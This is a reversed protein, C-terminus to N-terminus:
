AASSRADPAAEERASRQEPSPTVDGAVDGPAVAHRAANSSVERGAEPTAEQDAAGAWVRDLRPDAVAAALIRAAERRGDDLATLAALRARAGALLADAARAAAGRRARRTFLKAGLVSFAVAGIAGPGLWFLLLLPAGLIIQLAAGSSAEALRVLVPAWPEVLSPTLWPAAVPSLGILAGLAGGASASRRAHEAAGHRQDAADRLRWEADVREQTVADEIERLAAQLARRALNAVTIVASVPASLPPRPTELFLEPPAVEKVQGLADAALAGVVSQRAQEIMDIAAIADASLKGLAEDRAQSIRDFDADMRVADALSSDIDLAKSLRAAALEAEGAAAAAKAALYVAAAAEPALEAARDAHTRSRAPDGACYAAWGAALHAVALRRRAAPATELSVLPDDASAAEIRRAGTSLDKLAAQPDILSKEDTEPAGLRIMGRLIWASPELPGLGQPRELAATLSADAKGHAGQAFDRRAVDYLRAARPRLGQFAVLALGAFKKERTRAGGSKGGLSTVGLSNVGLGGAVLGDADLSEVGRAAAPQESGLHVGALPLLLHLRTWDLSGDMKPDADASGKPAAPADALFARWKNRRAAQEDARGRLVEGGGSYM